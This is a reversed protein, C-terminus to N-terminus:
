QQRRNWLKVAEVIDTAFPGEAQCPDCEVAHGNFWVFPERCFHCPKANALAAREEAYTM